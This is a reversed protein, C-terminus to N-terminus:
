SSEKIGIAHMVELVNRRMWKRRRAFAVSQSLNAGVHRLWGLVLVSREYAKDECSAGGTELLRLDASAWASGRLRRAIVDGFHHDDAIARSMAVLHVFDTAALGHAESRDWDVIGTVASADRSMLVNGCWFDGHIWSITAERGLLGNRLEREISVIPEAAPSMRLAEALRRLHAESWRAVDDPEVVRRRGTRVHLELAAQAALTQVHAGISPDAVLISADTGALSSTVVYRRRGVCGDGILRPVLKRFDGLSTEASLSRLMQAELELSAQAEVREATKVVVDEGDAVTLVILIAGAKTRKFVRVSRQVPDARQGIARLIELAHEHPTGRRLAQQDTITERMRRCADVGGALLGLASM